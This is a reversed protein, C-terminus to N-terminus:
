TPVQEAEFHVDMFDEFEFDEPGRLNWADEAKEEADDESEADVTFEYLARAEVKVSYPKLLPEVVFREYSTESIIFTRARQAPSVTKTLQEAIALADADDTASLHIEHPTVEVFRVIHTFNSM